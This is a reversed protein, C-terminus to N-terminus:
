QLKTSSEKHLQLWLRDAVEKLQQNFTADMGLEGGFKWEPVYPLMYSPLPLGGLSDPENSSVRKNLLFSTKRRLLGGEQWEPCEELWRIAKAQLARDETLVCVIHSSHLCASMSRESWGTEADVLVARCGTISSAAELWQVTEKPGLSVLERVTREPRFHEVRRNEFFGEGGAGPVKGGSRIAYLWEGVDHRPESSLLANGSMGAELSIHFIGGKTRSWEEALRAGVLTKGVGGGMSWVTIVPAASQKISDVAHGSKERIIAMWRALLSPVSQYKSMMEVGSSFGDKEVDTLLVIPFGFGGPQFLEWHSEHIVLLSPHREELQRLLSGPSLYPVVDIDNFRKQAQVYSALREAYEHDSDCLAIWHRM